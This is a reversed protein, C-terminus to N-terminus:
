FGTRALFKRVDPNESHEFVQEASGDESIRGHDFFLVRDSVDRVFRMEHSVIIMTIGNHAISTIVSLVESVWEPDLSSTPEDFLLVKPNIALARAIGVRQQQGGSLTSPYQDIQDALGVRELLGMGVDRADRKGMKKVLRLALMVNQLATMNRFLNYHQFVMASKSRLRNIEGSSPQGAEITVGDVTITGADAPELWDLTRLFTTKGAGSPGIVSVVQGALIHLDVNDIVTLDGFQKHLGRVQIIPEKNSLEDSM